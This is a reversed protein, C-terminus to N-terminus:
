VKKNKKKWIVLAEAQAESRSKYPGSHNMKLLTELKPCFVINYRYSQNEENEKGFIAWYGAAFIVRSGRTYLPYDLKSYEEKEEDSFFKNDCIEVLEHDEKIPYDKYNGLKKEEEVEKLDYKKIIHEFNEYVEKKNEHFLVYKEGHKFLLGLNQDFQKLIWFNEYIKEISGGYLM